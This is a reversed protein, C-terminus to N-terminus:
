DLAVFVNSGNRVRSVGMYAHARSMHKHGLDHLLLTRDESEGQLKHYTVAWGLQTTKALQETSIEFSEGVGDDTLLVRDSNVLQAVTYSV